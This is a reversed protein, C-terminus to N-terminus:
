ACGAGTPIAAPQSHPTDTVDCEDGAYGGVVGVPGHYAQCLVLDEAAGVSNIVHM